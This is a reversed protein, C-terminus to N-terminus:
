GDLPQSPWFFLHTPCRCGTAGFRPISPLLVELQCLQRAWLCEGLVGPFVWFSVPKGVRRLRDVHWHCRPTDKLHCALRKGLGGRASGLYVYLGPEFNQFGLAGVRIKPASALFIWFLYTGPQRFLGSKLLPLCWVKKLWGVPCNYGEAGLFSVKQLAGGTQALFRKELSM